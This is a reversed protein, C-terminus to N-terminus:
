GGVGLERLFEERYQQVFGSRREAEQRGSVTNMTTPLRLLKREIHDLSYARDDLERATGAPDGDHHLAGGLGVGTVWLRAIGVAGLADLRDADQLIAAEITAPRMGGSYSHAEVAHAIADITPAEVGREALFARAVAASQRASEGAPGSGKPLQVLDHLWCAAEVVFAEVTEGAAREADILLRANALVRSLHLADHATDLGACQDRAFEEIEDLLATTTM